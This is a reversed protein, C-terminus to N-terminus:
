RSVRFPENFFIFDKEVLADKIWSKVSFLAGIREMYAQVEIPVPLGYTNLRMVVPAFYADAATFQGFLLPGGHEKLLNGWMSCIRDLDHEIAPNDRMALDGATPLYAEINMPFATRLAGFGSHMEACISRAHARTRRDAPWLNKDPFQEALYEIIALSDWVVIDDHVLIPVKEVACIERLKTKFSSSPKLDDFRVLVEEFSINAQRMLVWPRMSWSSYNKNGIYLQIM